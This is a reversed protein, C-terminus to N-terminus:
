PKGRASFTHAISKFHKNHGGSIVAGSSLPLPQQAAQKSQQSFTPRFTPYTLEDFEHKRKEPISGSQPAIEGSSLGTLTHSMNLQQKQSVTSYSTISQVNKHGSLQMIDTPPVDNNVLTQIMTKRGSHNKFNPGLGAKQAMTKMLTNLKNVGVPAKKFWPKGSGSKVNNVGLLVTCRRNENGRTAKRRLSQLGKSSM